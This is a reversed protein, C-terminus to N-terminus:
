SRAVRLLVQSLKGLLRRPAKQNIFAVSYTLWSMWKRNLTSIYATKEGSVDIIKLFHSQSHVLSESLLNLDILLQLLRFKLSSSWCLILIAKLVLDTHIKCMWCSFFLGKLFVNTHSEKFRQLTFCQSGMCMIISSVFLLTLVKTWDPLAASVWPLACLEGQLLSYWFLFFIPVFKRSKLGTFTLSLFLTATSNM